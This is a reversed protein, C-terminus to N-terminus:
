NDKEVAFPRVLLAKVGDIHEHARDNCDKFVGKKGHAHHADVCGKLYASFGLKLATHVTVLDDKMVQYQDQYDKTTMVTKHACSILIFPLILKTLM